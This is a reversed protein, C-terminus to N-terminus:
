ARAEDAVLAPKFGFAERSVAVGSAALADSFLAFYEPPIKGRSRWNSLASAGVGALAAAPIDGGLAELVEDVTNLM